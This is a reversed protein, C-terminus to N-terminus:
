HLGVLELDVVIPSLPPIKDMDGVLGHALNSPMVMRCIDGIQMLKIGEQIGSEIDEHDITFVDNKDLESQYCLTGNLLSIKFKVEAKMGRTAKTGDGHKLFAIRLGSGTATFNLKEHQDIYFEIDDSQEKALDSGLEISKQKNWDFSDKKSETKCSFLLLTSTLFILSNKIWFSM